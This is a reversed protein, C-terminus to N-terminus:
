MHRIVLSYDNLNIWRKECQGQWGSVPLALGANRIVGDHYQFGNFSRSIKDNNIIITPHELLSNGCLNLIPISAESM